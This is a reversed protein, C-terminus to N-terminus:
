HVEVLVLTSRLIVVLAKIWDGSLMTIASFSTM